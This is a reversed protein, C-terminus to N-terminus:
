HLAVSERDVGDVRECHGQAERHTRNSNKKFKVKWFWLSLSYYNYNYYNSEPVDQDQHLNKYSELAFDVMNTSNLLELKIALLSNEDYIKRTSLFELLPFILHQDLYEAIKSTLDYEPM